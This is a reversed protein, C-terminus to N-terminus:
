SPASSTSRYNSDTDVSLRTHSVLLLFCRVTPAQGCWWQEEREWVVHVVIVAINAALTALVGVSLWEFLLKRPRSFDLRQPVVLDKKLHNKKPLPKGGPGLQEPQSPNTDNDNSATLISRLAFATIYLCLLLIPSIVQTYALIRQALPSSVWPSRPPFLTPLRSPSTCLRSFHM